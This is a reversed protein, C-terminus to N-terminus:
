LEASKSYAMQYRDMENRWSWNVETIRKRLDNNPSCSDKAEQLLEELQLSYYNAASLASSMVQQMTNM